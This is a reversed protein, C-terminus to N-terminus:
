FLKLLVAAEREGFETAADAEGKGGNGFADALHFVGSDDGAKAGFDIGGFDAQGDGGEDADAYDAVDEGADGFGDAVHRFDQFAMAAGAGIREGQFNGDLGDLMELAEDVFEGGEAGGRSGNNERGEDLM